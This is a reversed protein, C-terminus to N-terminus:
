LPFVLPNECCLRPTPSGQPSIPQRPHLSPVLFSSTGAWSPSQPGEQLHCSLWRFVQQFHGRSYDASCCPFQIRNNKFSWSSALPDLHVDPAVALRHQLPDFALCLLPRGPLLCNSIIRLSSRFHHLLATLKSQFPPRSPPACKKTFMIFFSIGPGFLSSSAQLFFPSIIYFKRPRIYCSITAEPIALQRVTTHPAPVPTFLDCTSESPVGDVLLTSRHKTPIRQISFRTPARHQNFTHLFRDVVTHTLAREGNAHYMKSPIYPM